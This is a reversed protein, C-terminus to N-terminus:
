KKEKKIRRIKNAISSRTRLIQNNEIRKENLIQTIEKPKKKAKILTKIRNEEQKSWRQKKGKKPKLRGPKQLTPKIKPKRKPTIITKIPKKKTESIKMIKHINDEKIANFLEDTFNMYNDLIGRLFNDKSQEISIEKFREIDNEVISELLENNIEMYNTIINRINRILKLENSKKSM